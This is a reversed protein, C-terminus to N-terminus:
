FRVVAVSVSKAGNEKAAAIIRGISEDDTPIDAGGVPAPAAKPAPNTTPTTKPAAPRRNRARPPTTPKRVGGGSTKYMDAVNTNSSWWLNVLEDKVFVDGRRSTCAFPAPVKPLTYNGPTAKSESAVGANVAETVLKRIKLQDTASITM